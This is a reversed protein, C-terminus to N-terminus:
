DTGVRPLMNVAFAILLAIILPPITRLTRRSYFGGLSITGTKRWEKVFLPTILFGSLFFFTTTALEGPVHPLIQAHFIFVVMVAMARIGDLGPIFARSTPLPTVEVRASM